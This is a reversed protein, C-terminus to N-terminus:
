PREPQRRSIGSTVPGPDDATTTPGGALVVVSLAAGAAVALWWGTTAGVSGSPPAVSTHTVAAVAAALAAGADLAVHRRAPPGSWAGFCGCPTMPSRRRLTVVVATLAAYIVATAAAPWQGGDLLLWLAVAVEVVGLLRATRTGGGVGVATLMRATATPDVAKVAGAAGLVVAAVGALVSVVVV